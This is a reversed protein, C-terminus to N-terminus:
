FLSKLLINYNVIIDDNNLFKSLTNKANVKGQKSFFDQSFLSIFEQKNVPKKYSSYVEFGNNLLSKSSAFNNKHVKSFVWEFGDEKAKDLLFKVMQKMIGRGKYNSHVMTFGIEVLKSTNCNTPFEIKGILKGCKYDFSSVACLIDGDFIGIIYFRPNTIINQVNEIDYPMPSFWELNELHAYMNIILESFAQADAEILQRILM